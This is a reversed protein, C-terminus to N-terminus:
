LNKGKTDTSNLIEIKNELTKIIREMNELRENQTEDLTLNQKQLSKASCIVVVIIVAFLARLLEM